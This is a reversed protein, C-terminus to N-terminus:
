AVFLPPWLTLSRGYYITRCAAPSTRCCFEHLRNLYQEAGVDRVKGDACTIPGSRPPYHYDAAAKVARRVSTLLLAHDEANTSGLLNAAKRLGQFVAECKEAYFNHVDRQVGALIESTHAEARLQGELRTAYYLCRTRVRELVENCARIKLRMQGKLEVNRGTFAAADYEGLGTPLKLDEISKEMHEIERTLDGVGMGLVNRDKDDSFLPGSVTREQIWRELTVSALQKRADDSLHHTEEFIASKLQPVDPHLERLFMVVNALDNTARALRLCVIVAKDVERAEVHTHIREVLELPEV